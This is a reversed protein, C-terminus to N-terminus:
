RSRYGPRARVSVGPRGVEVRIRRFAGDRTTTSPYYYLVFQRGLEDSIRSFGSVVQDLSAAPLVAGGSDAAIARLVQRADNGDPRSGGAPAPARAVIAGRPMTTPWAGVGESLQTDHLVVYVPVNSGQIRELAGAATAWGSGVDLGDTVLVLAKRGAVPDLRGAVVADIADFLRSGSGGIRTALVARRLRERDTTWESGVYARDDFSVVMARDSPRLSDIFASAAGKAAEFHPRMSESTDMVLAVSLPESETTFESVRQEAEDEFVRCEWAMLDRVPAGDAGTVVLPVAVAAVGARFTPLVPPRAPESSPRAVPEPDVGPPASATELPASRLPAPSVCVTQARGAVDGKARPALKRGPAYIPSRGDAFAKVM